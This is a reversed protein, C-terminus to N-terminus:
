VTEQSAATIQEAIMAVEDNRPDGFLCVESRLIVGGAPVKLDNARLTSGTSTIDIIADALGAHPAGETAGGSPVLRFAQIGHVRALHHNALREYKTAIRLRRGHRARFEAAIDAVDDMTEVDFWIRPLALVVDARGVNLRCLLSAAGFQIREGGSTSAEDAAEWALDLGTLGMTVGGAVVERAIESASMFIIEVGAQNTMARYARDDAASAGLGARDLVALADSRIRGKSPVALTIM